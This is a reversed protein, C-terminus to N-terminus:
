MRGVSEPKHSLPVLRGHWAVTQEHALVRTYREQLGALANRYRHCRFEANEAKGKQIMGDVRSPDLSQERAIRGEEDNQAIAATVVSILEALESASPPSALAAAVREDLTPEGNRAM